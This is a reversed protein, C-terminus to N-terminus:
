MCSLIEKKSDSFVTIGRKKLWNEAIGLVHAGTVLARRSQLGRWCKAFIEVIKPGLLPSISPISIQVAFKGLRESIKSPFQRHPFDSVRLLFRSLGFSSQFSCSVSLFFLLLALFGFCVM